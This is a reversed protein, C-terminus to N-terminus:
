ENLSVDCIRKLTFLHASLEGGHKGKREGGLRNEQNLKEKKIRLFKKPPELLFNVEFVM